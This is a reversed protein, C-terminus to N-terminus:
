AAQETSEEPVIIVLVIYVLVGLGKTGLILLVWGLRVFAPDINFHKALGGCVGAIKRDTRSRYFDFNWKRGTTKPDQGTEEDDSFNEIVEDATESPNKWQAYLMAAGGAILLVAFITTWPLDIYIFDFWDWQRFLLLVGLAVFIIGWIKTADTSRNGGSHEEDPNEPVIILAALYLIAGIGGIFAGIVFLLRVLNSDLGSYQGIGGCVGGLFRDTKSRYFRNQKEEEM